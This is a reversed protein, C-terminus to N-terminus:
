SLGTRAQAKLCEAITDGTVLPMDGNVILLTGSFDALADRACAAAHGTGLQRDQIASECGLSGAYARVADGAPSTVVVIREVGAARLAGVVHGLLPLGAVKHLVKPLASKMRTGAGAALIVAAKAM